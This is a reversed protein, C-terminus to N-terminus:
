NYIPQPDDDIINIINNNVNQQLDYEIYKPSLIKCCKIPINHTNANIYELLKEYINDFSLSIFSTKHEGYFLQNQFLEIKTYYNNDDVCFSFVYGNQTKKDLTMIIKNDKIINFNNLSNNEQNMNKEYLYQYLKNCNYIKMEDLFLNYLIYNIIKTFINENCKTTIKICNDVNKNNNIITYIECSHLNYPPICLILGNKNDTRLIKIYNKNFNLLCLNYFPYIQLNSTIYTNLNEMKILSDKYDNEDVLRETATTM